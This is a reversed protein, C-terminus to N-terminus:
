RFYCNLFDCKGLLLTKTKKLMVSLCVFLIKILLVYKILIQVLIEFIKLLLRSIFEGWLTVSPIVSICFHVYIIYIKALFKMQRDKISASFCYNYFQHICNQSEAIFLNLYNKGLKSVNNNFIHNIELKHIWFSLCYM